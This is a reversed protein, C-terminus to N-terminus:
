NYNNQKSIVELISKCRKVRRQDIDVFSNYLERLLKRAEEPNLRGVPVKYIKKYM